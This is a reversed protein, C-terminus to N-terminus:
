VYLLFYFCSPLSVYHMIIIHWWRRKRRQDIINIKAVNTLL